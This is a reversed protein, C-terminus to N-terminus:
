HYLRKFLKKGALLTVGFNDVGFKKALILVIILSFGKQLLNSVLQWASNRAIRKVTSM